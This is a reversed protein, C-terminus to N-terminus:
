LTVDAAIFSLEGALADLGGALVLNTGGGPVSIGTDALNKTMASVGGLTTGAADTGTIKVLTPNGTCYIKIYIFIGIPVHALNLTFTSEHASINIVVSTAGACDVTHSTDTGYDASVAVPKFPSGWSADGRWVQSQDGPAESVVGDTSTTNYRISVSPLFNPM